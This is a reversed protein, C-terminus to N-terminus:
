CGRSLLHKESLRRRFQCAPTALGEAQSLMGVRCLPFQPVWRRNRQASDSASGLCGLWCRGWVRVLWIVLGLQSGAAAQEHVLTQSPYLDPCSTL